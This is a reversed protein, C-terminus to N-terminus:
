HTVGIINYSLSVRVTMMDLEESCDLLPVQSGNKLDPPIVVDCVILYQIESFRFIDLNSEDPVSHAPYAM